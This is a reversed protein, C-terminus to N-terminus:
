LYIITYSHKKSNNIKRNNIYNIIISIDHQGIIM